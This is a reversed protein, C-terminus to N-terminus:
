KNSFENKLDYEFAIVPRVPENLSKTCISLGLMSTKTSLVIAFNSEIYQTSSWYYKEKISVGGIINMCTEIENINDLWAQLEGAAPLYGQQGNVFIEAASWRAARCDSFKGAAKAALIAETNVKGNIDLKCDDGSASTVGDIIMDSTCWELKQNLDKPYIVHPCIAYKSYLVAVGNADADTM